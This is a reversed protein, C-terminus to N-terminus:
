NPSAPIKHILSPGSRWERVSAHPPRSLLHLDPDVRKEARQAHLACSFRLTRREEGRLVAVGKMFPHQQLNKLFPHCRTSRTAIRSPNLSLDAIIWESRALPRACFPHDDLIM